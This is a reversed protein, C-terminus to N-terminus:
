SLPQLSKPPIGAGVDIWETALIEHVTIMADGTAVPERSNSYAVLSGLHNGKVAIPLAVSTATHIIGGATSILRETVQGCPQTVMTVCGAGVRKKLHAAYLDLSNTKTLERGVLQVLGTGILRIRVDHESLVDLIIVFPQLEPDPANLFASLNPLLGDKPLSKWHAVFKQAPVATGVVM